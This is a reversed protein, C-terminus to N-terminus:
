WSIVCIGNSGTPPSLACPEIEKSPYPTTMHHTPLSHEIFLDLLSKETTAILHEARANLKKMMATMRLEQPFSTTDM